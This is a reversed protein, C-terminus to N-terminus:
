ACNGGAMEGVGDSVENTQRKEEEHAYSSCKSQPPIDDVQVRVPVQWSSDVFVTGCVGGEGRDGVEHM